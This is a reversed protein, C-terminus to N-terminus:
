KASQQFKGFILKYVAICIAILVFSFVALKSQLFLILYGISPIIVRVKGLVRSHSVLGLDATENADGKTQYESFNHISVIRHTVVSNTSLFSIVDSPQYHEQRVALLVDGFGFTPMM